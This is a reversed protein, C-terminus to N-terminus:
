FPVEYHMEAMADGCISKFLVQQEPSWTAYAPERHDLIKKVDVSVQDPLDLPHLLTTKTYEASGEHYSTGIFAFIKQLIDEPKTVLQEHHIKIASDFDALYRYQEVGETWAKCHEIFERRRFGQYRTRSQVVESGNRVIYIFKAVPYLKMLGKFSDFTPFTKACWYTKRMRSFNLRILRKVFDKPTRMMGYNRGAASEFCLRRLSEYLHEQPIHLSRVFYDKAIGFEFPCLLSGIHSIFPADGMNLILPHEGLARVLITTGSRGVGVVFIPHHFCRKALFKGLTDLM